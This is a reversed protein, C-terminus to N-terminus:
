HAPRLPIHGTTHHSTSSGNNPAIGNSVAWIAVQTRNELNLKRLIAKMHVKVTAETIDLKRAIVKNSHGEAVCYVIELARSSLHSDNEHHEEEEEWDGSAIVSAILTPFVKEGSMVLDLSAILAESSISKLLFGDAGSSFSTTLLGRELHDSLIVIHPHDMVNKLITLTEALEEATKNVGLIILDYSDEHIAKADSTETFVEFHSDSLLSKIGARMLANEEIICTSFTKISINGTSSINSPTKMDIEM